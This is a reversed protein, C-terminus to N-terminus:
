KPLPLRDDGTEDDLTHFRTKCGATELIRQVAQLWEPTMHEGYISSIQCLVGQTLLDSLVHEDSGEIDSKLVIIPRVSTSLIHARIWCSMDLANVQVAKVRSRGKFMEAQERILSAGWQNHKGEGPTSYFTVSGDATSVATPAFIHVSRGAKRYASALLHLRRAHSPNAEFGFACCRSRDAGFSSNFLAETPNSPYLEPEFLKRIQHGVNTGMDIYVCNCGSGLPAGVAKCVRGPGMVEATDTAEGSTICAFCVSLALVVCALRRRAM